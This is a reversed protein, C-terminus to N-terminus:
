PKAGLRWEVVTISYPPMMVANEESPKQIALGGKAGSYTFVRRESVQACGGLAFSAQYATKPELNLAVATVVSGDDSSSAFLSTGSPAKVKLSWDQFHAGKGDYNRFARFAHFAASDKAPYSWYYASTLNQQGFRGLAEATALGGSIDNEAGFNWEGISTGLGPYNESVWQKMRPILMVPEDIWSEDRYSPDWLARTSRIRRARAENSVDGTQAIGMGQAQPYYHLDLVDLVKVGTKKEYERLRELYWPILAKGGHAARDPGRTGGRTRDAASSFYNTWGWEAPGAIVAQPDAERVAAGYKITRSLLEDYSLGEPHLDRHTTDWLAPENDLIYHRADRKRGKAKDAELMAKVWQGIFEPPAEVSTATPEPSPVFKGNRLKGNGAGSAGEVNEQDPYKSAPFPFSTTDKAVWGIIPVTVTATMGHEATSQLFSDWEQRQGDIYNLNRFYWDSGANWANGLQWNYRTMQNGGWRRATAGLQWQHQDKYEDMVYYAIGYVLPSIRHTRAKCEIALSAPKVPADPTKEAAAGAGEVKVGPVTLAVNDFAVWDKAVQKHAFLVIQDFAEDNPNLEDIPIFVEKWGDKLARTNASEVRVRPFAKDDGGTRKLRVDLFEGFSEPAKYHFVVGGAARTAGPRFLIWGGYGSVNHQLPPGVGERRASWGFDMWGNQFGQAYATESVPPAPATRPGKPQAQAEHRHCACLLLVLALSRLTM